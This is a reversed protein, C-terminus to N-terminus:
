RCSLYWRADPHILAIKWSLLCEMAALLFRMLISEHMAYLDDEREIVRRILAINDNQQSLVEKVLAIAKDVKAQDPYKHGQYQAQLDTYHQLEGTFAKSRCKSM